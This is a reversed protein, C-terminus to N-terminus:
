SDVNVCAALAPINWGSSAVQASHPRGATQSLAVPPADNQRCGVRVLATRVWPSDDKLFPDRRLQSHGLLAYAHYYSRIEVM